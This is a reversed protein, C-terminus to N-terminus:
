LIEGEALSQRILPMLQTEITFKDFSKVNPMNFSVNNNTNNTTQNPIVQSGRPLNVLEPGHEGVIAAGGPAFSTGHAFGPAGFAQRFAINVGERFLQKFISKLDDGFFVSTALSSAMRAAAAAAREMGKAVVEIDEPLQSVELNMARFLDLMKQADAPLQEGMLEALREFHELQELTHNNQDRMISSQNAMEPAIEEVTKVQSRLLELNEALAMGRLQAEERLHITTALLKEGAEIAMQSSKRQEPGGAMIDQFERLLEAGRKGPGELQAILRKSDEDSFAGFRGAIPFDRKLARIKEINDVLGDLIKLATIIPPILDNGISAALNSMNAGAVRAVNALSNQTNLFDDHTDQTQSMIADIRLLRKEQQSMSAVSKNIGQSLAFAQLTAVTVDAAYRTIPETQGRLASNIAALADRVDTDFVSAMDAARKTLILTKKAVEDLPIGTDKILAGTVTALKNFEARSLGVSKSATLGFEKIQVSSEKFVVNVANISEELLSAESVAKKLASGLAVTAFSFLLLQNRLAGIRAAL